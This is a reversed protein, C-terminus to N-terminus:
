IPNFPRSPVPCSDVRDPHTMKNNKDQRQFEIGDLHVWCEEFVSCYCVRTTIKHREVDFKSFLDVNQPSAPMNFFDVHEGARLIRPAVIGVGTSTAKGQQSEAATPRCCARMLEGPASMPIGNWWLEFTEVRAPGIGENTLLLRVDGNGHEDVNHTEFIVFPWANAEVMRANADAMRGMTRGHEVAVILSIVSMFMASIGLTLDLWRHGTHGTHHHEPTEPTM